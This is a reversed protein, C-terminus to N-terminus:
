TNLAPAQTAQEALLLQAVRLHVVVVEERQAEQGAAPAPPALGVQVISAASPFQINVGLEKGLECATGRDGGTSGEGRASDGTISSSSDGTSSRGYAGRAYGGGTSGGGSSGATGCSGDSITRGVTQGGTSAGSAGRRGIIRGVDEIPETGGPTTVGGRVHADGTSSSFRKGSVLSATRGDSSTGFEGSNVEDGVVGDIGNRGVGEVGTASGGSSTDGGVLADSSGVVDSSGSDGGSGGSRVGTGSARNRSGGGVAGLGATSTGSGGVENGANFTVSSVVEISSNALRVGSAGGSGVLGSSTGLGGVGDAGSTAGTGITEELGLVTGGGDVGDASRALNSTIFALGGSAKITTGSAVVVVDESVRGGLALQGATVTLYVIVETFLAIFGDGTFAFVALTVFSEPGIVVSDATVNRLALDVTAGEVGGFSYLARLRLGVVTNTRALILSEDTAGGGGLNVELTTRIEVSTGIGIKGLFVENLGDNGVRLSELEDEVDPVVTGDDVGNIGNLLVLTSEGDVEGERVSSYGVDIIQGVGDLVVVELQETNGEGVHFDSNDM